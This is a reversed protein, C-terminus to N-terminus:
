CRGERTHTGHTDLQTYTGHTDRQTDHERMHTHMYICMAITSMSAGLDRM